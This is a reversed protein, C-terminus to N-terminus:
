PERAIVPRDGRGLVPALNRREVDVKFTRLWGASKRAGAREFHLQRIVVQLVGDGPEAEGRHHGNRKPEPQPCSNALLPGRGGCVRRLRLLGSSRGIEGCVRRWNPRAPAPRFPGRWPLTTIRAVAFRDADRPLDAM